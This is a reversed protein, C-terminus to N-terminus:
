RAEVEKCNNSKSRTGKLLCTFDEIARKYDNGYNIALNNSINEKSIRCDPILIFENKFIERNEMMLLSIPINVIKSSGNMIVSANINEIYVEKDHQYKMIDPTELNTKSDIYEKTISNNKCYKLYKQLEVKNEIDLPYTESIDCWFNYHQEDSVFLIDHNTLYEYFYYDFNYDWDPYCFENSIFPMLEVCEEDNSIIVKSEAIDDINLLAYVIKYDKFEDSNSVIRHTDKLLGSYIDSKKEERKWINFEKKIENSLNGYLQENSYKKISIFENLLVQELFSRKESNM